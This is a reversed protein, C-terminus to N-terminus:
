KSRSWITWRFGKKYANSTKATKKVRVLHKRGKLLRGKYSTAESKTKKNAYPIFGGKGGFKRVAKLKGM